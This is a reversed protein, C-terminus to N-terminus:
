EKDAQLTAVDKQLARLRESLTEQSVRHLPCCVCMVLELLPMRTWSLYDLYCVGALRVQSGTGM